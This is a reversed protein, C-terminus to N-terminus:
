LPPASFNASEKERATRGLTSVPCAGDRRLQGAQYQTFASRRVLLFDGRLRLARTVSPMLASLQYSHHRLKSSRAPPKLQARQRSRGPSSAITTFAATC